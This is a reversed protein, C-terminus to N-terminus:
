YRLVQGINIRDPNEINNLEVLKSVTTGLERAIESLTDGSIVTYTRSGAKTNLSTVPSAASYAGFLGYLNLPGYWPIKPDAKVSRGPITVKYDKGQYTYSFVLTIKPNDQLTKMIDYPLATGKDWLVTQEGGRSIATALNTRLDDLDDQIPLEEKPKSDDSVTGPNPDDSAPKRQYVAKIRVEGDAGYRFTTNASNSDTITANGSLAEWRVFDYGSGPNATIDFLYSVNTHFVVNSESTPHGAGDPETTFTVPWGETTLVAKLTFTIIPEDDTGTKLASEIIWHDFDVINKDDITYEFPRNGSTLSDTGLSTGDSDHYVVTLKGNTFDPADATWRIIDGPYCVIQVLTHLTDYGTIDLHFGTARVTTYPIIALIAGLVLMFYYKKWKTILKSHRIKNNKMNTNRGKGSSVQLLYANLRM